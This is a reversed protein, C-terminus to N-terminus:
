LQLHKLQKTAINGQVSQYPLYRALKPITAKLPFSPMSDYNNEKIFIGFADELTVIRVDSIHNTFQRTSILIAIITGFRLVSLITMAVSVITM